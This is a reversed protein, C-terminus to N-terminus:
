WLGPVSLIQRASGWWRGLLDRGTVPSASAPNRRGLGALATPQCGEIPGLQPKLATLTANWDAKPNSQTIAIVGDGMRAKLNAAEDWTGDHGTSAGAVGYGDDAIIPKKTLDHVSKWTMPNAMRIRANNAETGGGSTNIYTFDSMKFAGFWSAPNAVWPSIDMSFVANPLHKRVAAVLDGM